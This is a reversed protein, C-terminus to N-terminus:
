IDRWIEGATKINITLSGNENEKYDLEFQEDTRDWGELQGEPIRSIGLAQLVENLFVYQNARLKNRFTDIVARIFMANYERTVSWNDNDYNFEFEHWHEELSLTTQDSMM